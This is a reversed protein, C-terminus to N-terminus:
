TSTRPDLPPFSSVRFDLTVSGVLELNSRTLALSRENAVRVLVATQTSPRTAAPLIVPLTALSSARAALGVNTPPPQFFVAQPLVPAPQTVQMTVKTSLQGGTIAISPMGTKLLANLRAYSDAAQRALRALVFTELADLRAGWPASSEGTPVIVDEIAREVAPAGPRKIAAIVGRFHDVLLQRAASGFLLFEPLPASAVPVPLALLPLVIERVYRGATQAQEAPTNGVLRAQYAELPVGVQSALTVFTESQEMASDTIAKFVDRMLATTLEALPFDDNAM